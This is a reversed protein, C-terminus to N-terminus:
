RHFSFLRAKRSTTTQPIFSIMHQLVCGLSGTWLGCVHLVGQRHSSNGRSGRGGRGHDERRNATVGQTMRVSRQAM